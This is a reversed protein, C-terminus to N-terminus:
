KKINRYLNTVDVQSETLKYGPINKMDRSFIPM